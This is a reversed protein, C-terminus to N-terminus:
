QSLTELETVFRTARAKLHRMMMMPCLNNLLECLNQRMDAVACLHFRQFSSISCLMTLWTGFLKLGSWNWFPSDPYKCANPWMLHFSSVTAPYCYWYASRTPSPCTVGCLAPECGQMCCIARHSLFFQCIFYRKCSPSFILFLLCSTLCIREQKCFRCIVSATFRNSDFLLYLEAAFPSM